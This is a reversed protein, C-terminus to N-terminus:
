LFVLYGLWLILSLISGAFGILLIWVGAEYRGLLEDRSHNTEM